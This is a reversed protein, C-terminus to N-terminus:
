FEDGEGAGSGGDGAGTSYTIINEAISFKEIDASPAEYIRKM